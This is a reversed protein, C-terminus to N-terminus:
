VSTKHERKLKEHQKKQQNRKKKMSDKRHRDTTRLPTEEEKRDDNITRRAGVTGVQKKKPSPLRLDYAHAMIMFPSDVASQGM